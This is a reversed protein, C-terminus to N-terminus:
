VDTYVGKTRADALNYRADYIEHKENCNLSMEVEGGTLGVTVLWLSFLPEQLRLYFLAGHGGRCLPFRLPVALFSSFSLSLSLTPPVFLSSARSSLLLSSSPIEPVRSTRPDTTEERQEPGDRRGWQRRSPPPRTSKRRREQRESRGEKRGGKRGEKGRQIAAPSVFAVFYKTLENSISRCHRVFM